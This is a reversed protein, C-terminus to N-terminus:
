SSVVELEEDPGVLAFLVAILEAVVAPYYQSILRLSQLCLLAKLESRIGSDLM